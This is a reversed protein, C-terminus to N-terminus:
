PCLLPDNVGFFGETARLLDKVVQAAVGVTHGNGIVTNDVDFLALDGEFISISLVIGFDFDHGKFCILEDPSEQEVDQGIIEHADAVEAEECVAAFPFLQGYAASEEAKRGLHGLDAFLCGRM